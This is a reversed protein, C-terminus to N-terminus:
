VNDERDFMLGIALDFMFKIFSKLKVKLLIDSQSTRPTMRYLIKKVILTGLKTCIWHIIAFFMFELYGVIDILISKQGRLLRRDAHFKTPIRM